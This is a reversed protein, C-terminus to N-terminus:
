YISGVRPLSTPPCHVEWLPARGDVKFMFFKGSAPPVTILSATRELRPGKMASGGFTPLELTYNRTTPAQTRARGRFLALTRQALPSHNIISVKSQKETPRPVHVVLCLSRTVVLFPNGNALNLRASHGLKPKCSTNKTEM